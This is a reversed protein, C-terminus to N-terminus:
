EYLEGSVTIFGQINGCAGSWTPAYYLTGEAELNFDISLNKIVYEDDDVLAAIHDDSTWLLNMNSEYDGAKAAQYIRLEDLTVANVWNLRIHIRNIRGSKITDPIVISFYATPTDTAVKSTTLDSHAGAAEQFVKFFFPKRTTWTGEKRERPAAM